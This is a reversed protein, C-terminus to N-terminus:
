HEKALRKKIVEDSVDDREQLSGASSWDRASSICSNTGSSNPMGKNRHFSWTAGLRRGLTVLSFFGFFSFSWQINGARQLMGSM